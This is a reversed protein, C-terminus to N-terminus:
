GIYDFAQKIVRIKNKLIGVVDFRCATDTMQRTTVYYMAAKSIKRQKAISVAELPNGKKEDSRYKVECFVLYEGDKAIIDIEGQSCRFNYEVIQYGKQELYKGALREYSCGIEHTNKKM